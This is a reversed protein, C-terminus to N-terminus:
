RGTSKPKAYRSVQVIRLRGRRGSTITASIGLRTAHQILLEEVFFEVDTPDVAFQRAMNRARRPVFSHTNIVVGDGDRTIKADSRLLLHGQVIDNLFEEFLSSANHNAVFGDYWGTSEYQEHVWKALQEPSYGQANAFAVLAIVYMLPADRRASSSLPVGRVPSSSAILRIGPEPSHQAHAKSM